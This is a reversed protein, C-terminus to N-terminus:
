LQGGNTEKYRASISEMLQETTLTSIVPQTAASNESCATIACGDRIETYFSCSLSGDLVDFSRLATRLGTGLLKVYAEKATWIEFFRRDPDPSELVAQRENETFFRLAPKQGGEIRQIDIGVPCTDCAFAFAGDSHSLSFHIDDRDSLYPKGHQTRSIRIDTTHQSLGHLMLLGKLILSLRAANGHQRAIREQREQTLMKLYKRYEDSPQSLDAHLILINM